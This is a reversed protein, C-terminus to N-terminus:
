HERDGRNYSAQDFDTMGGEGTVEPIMGLGSTTIVDMVGFKIIEMEPIEYEKKM